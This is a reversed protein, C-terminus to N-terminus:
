QTPGLGDARPDTGTLFATGDAQVIQAHGCRDDHTQQNLILFDTNSEMHGARFPLGPELVCAEELNPGFTGVVFRPQAVAFDPSKGKVIHNILQAQIQAQSRGGMSAITTLKGDPHDILVPLLTSPPRFGPRLYAPHGPKLSFSASRNQLIIGTEPEMVRAGFAYFISHLSSVTLGSSDTAAIGVTDGSARPNSNEEGSSGKRAQSVLHHITETALLAEIDVTGASPDALFRERQENALSCLYALPVSSNADAFDWGGHEIAALIQLLTFGQSNPPATSILHGRYHGSIPAVVDSKQQEFDHDSVTSGLERMGHSLKEALLGRYLVDPGDAGIMRLSEALAPQRLLAGTELPGASAQGFVGRLGPDHELEPWLDKLDRGLADAVPAGEEALTVAEKLLVGWDLKGGIKHMEAWGRVAGPVPSSQAGSQPMAGGFEAALQEPDAAAPHRGTGNLALTEGGPTRILSWSDGGLGTMHPYVVGLVAAAAIVADIASGGQELIKNGAKTALHHPTAIAGLQNTM